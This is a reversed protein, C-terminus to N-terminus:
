AHRKPKRTKDIQTRAWVMVMIIICAFANLRFTPTIFHFIILTINMCIAIIHLDAAPIVFMFLFFFIWVCACVTRYIHIFHIYLRKAQFHHTDYSQARALLACQNFTTM